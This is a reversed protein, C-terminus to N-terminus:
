NNGYYILEKPSVIKLNKYGYKENINNYGKIRSENVIHKFNWSVLIDVLNITAFAIHLCDEFSTKGVVKQNIYEGALFEVKKDIELIDQVSHFSLYFDLIQIPAYNLEKLVMKSTILNYKDLRIDEFLLRTEINFEVDFFVGYISTDLYLLPKNM